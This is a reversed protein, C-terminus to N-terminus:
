FREDIRGNGTQNQKQRIENQEQVTKGISNKSSYDARTQPNIPLRVRGVITENEKEYNL